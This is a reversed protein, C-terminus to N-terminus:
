GERLVQERASPPADETQGLQIARALVACLVSDLVDDSTLLLAHQPADLEVPLGASWLAAILRGCAESWQKGKYQQFPHGWRKLAAAPYVESVIGAPRGDTGPLGCDFPRALRHLLRAGRIPTAGFLNAAVPLPYLSTHRAVREDTFRRTLQALTGEAQFPLGPRHGAVAAAWPGPWGFPVDIAVHDAVGAGALVHEDTAAGARQLVWARAREWRLLCLGTRRADTSLDVGLTTAAAPASM